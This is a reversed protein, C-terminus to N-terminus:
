AATPQARFPEASRQAHRAAAIEGDTAPAMMEPAAFPADEMSTAVEPALLEDLPPEATLLAAPTWAVPRLFRVRARGARVHQAAERREILTHRARLRRALRQHRKARANLRQGLM